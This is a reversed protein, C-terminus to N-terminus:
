GACDWNHAGAGDAWLRAALRDQEAKSAQYAHPTSGGMRRWTEPMFQYYGSAGDGNPPLNQGGSECQVVPWPIAWPGGPGGQTAAARERQAILRRLAHEARTRGARTGTLAAARAARARELQVQREALGTRMSALAARRRAIEDTREQQQTELRALVQSQHRTEERAGRVRDVVSANRDQVREIFEFRELLDAFSSAGLVLSVIDPRDAKYGNVLQDALVERGEALRRRLQALRARERVLQARTDGLRAEASDLTAQVDDLRGQIIAVERGVSGLLRDLGAIAGSLARERERGSQIRDRLTSESQGSAPVPSGAGLGLLTLAVALSVTWRHRPSRGGYSGAPV